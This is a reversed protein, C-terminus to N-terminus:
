DYVQMLGPEGYAQECERRVQIYDTSNNNIVSGGRFFHQRVLYSTSSAICDYIKEMVKVNISWFSGTSPPLLAVLIMGFEVNLRKIRGSKGYNDARRRGPSTM